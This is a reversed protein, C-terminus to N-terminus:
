DAGKARVSIWKSVKLYDKRREGTTRRDKTSRREIGGNIFYELDYIMRRDNDSRRDLYPDAKRKEAFTPKDAMTGEM